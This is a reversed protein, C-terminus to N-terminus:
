VVPHAIQDLGEIFGAYRVVRDDNEERVVTSVCVWWSGCVGLSEAIPRRRAVKWLATALSRQILPARAFRADDNPGSFYLWACHVVGKKLACVKIRREKRHCSELRTGTHLKIAHVLASRQNTFLRWPVENEAMEWVPSRVLRFM